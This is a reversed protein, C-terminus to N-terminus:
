GDRWRCQLYQQLQRANMTLQRLSDLLGKSSNDKASWNPTLQLQSKLYAIFMKSIKPCKSLARICPWICASLSPIASGAFEAWPHLIPWWTTLRTKDYESAISDMRQWGAVVQFLFEDDLQAWTTPDQAPTRAICSSHLVLQQRNWSLKEDKRWHFPQRYVNWMYIIFMIYCRTYLFQYFIRLSGTCWLAWSLGKSLNGERGVFNTEIFKEM